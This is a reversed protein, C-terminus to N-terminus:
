IRLLLKILKKLVYLPRFILVRMRFVFLVYLKKRRNLLKYKDGFQRLYYVWILNHLPYKLLLKEFDEKTDGLSIDQNTYFSDYTVMRSLLIDKSFNQQQTIALGTSLVRIKVLPVPLNHVIGFRSIRLLFDADECSHALYHPTPMKQMAATRIMFTSHPAYPRPDFLVRKKTMARKTNQYNDIIGDPFNYKKHFIEMQDKEGFALVASGLLVCQPNNEMYHLQKEFRDPFCVDNADIRAIYKGQAVAIGENLSEVLGKNPRSIIQIRSDEYSQIIKLTDDTSGDDIIIFEFHPFTQQLVSDICEAIYLEENYAAMVVSIVPPPTIRSKREHSFM